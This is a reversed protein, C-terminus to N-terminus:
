AVFMSSRTQSPPSSKPGGLTKRRFLRGIDIQRPRTLVTLSALDSTVRSRINSSRHRTRERTRTVLDVISIESGTKLM